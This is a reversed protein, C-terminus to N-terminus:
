PHTDAFAADIGTRCARAAHDAVARDGLVPKVDFAAIRISDVRRADWWLDFSRATGTRTAIWISKPRQRIPPAV